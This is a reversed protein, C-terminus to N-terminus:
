QTKKKMKRRTKGDDDAVDDFNAFFGIYIFIPILAIIIISTLFTNLVQDAEHCVPIDNFFALVYRTGNLVPRAGHFLQAGHTIADGQQPLFTINRLIPFVTGGGDFDYPTHISILDTENGLCLTCDCGWVTELEHRSYNQSMWADCSDGRCHSKCLRQSYFSDRIKSPWFIGTQRSSTLTVTASARGVDAHIALDSQADNAASYKIVFGDVLRLDEFECRTILDAIVRKTAGEVIGQVGSSDHEYISALPLDTTPYNVHRRRTYGGLLSAAKETALIIKETEEISLVNHIINPQCQARRDYAPTRCYIM